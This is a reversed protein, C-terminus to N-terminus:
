LPSRAKPSPLQAVGALTPPADRKNWLRRLWKRAPAEYFNYLLISVLLVVAIVTILLVTDFVIGRVAAGALKVVVMLVLYHVLYISYSADGLILASRSSLAQSFVHRYRAASFILLAASPALAFNMYMNRFFNPGVDRSYELYTIVVMSATAGLFAVAGMANEARGPTASRLQVYLQAILSGLVFEGMRLYPSFYLLWRVYSDQAAFVDQPEVMEAIPGYRAVAWANIQPAHNYLATTLAIWLACWAFTLAVTLRPSRSRLILWAALPYILYFFWETSISWTLSTAGGIAYILTTDGIPKYCWSQVSILFYPLAHLVDRFPGPNGGWFEYHKRSVLVYCLLTLLFLPYLRAFRAWLFAAIGRAGGATVLQAYNYHIVFGSLVFFLTMGFGSAQTGWYIFGGPAGHGQLLVGFGHAIVVSFAALFRLGTLGPVDDPHIRTVPTPAAADVPQPNVIREM